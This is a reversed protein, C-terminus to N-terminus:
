QMLTYRYAIVDGNTDFYVTLWEDRLSRPTFQIMFSFTENTQFRQTPDVIDGDLNTKTLIEYRAFLSEVENTKMGAKLSGGLRELAYPRSDCGAWVVALVICVVFVSIPRNKLKFVPGIKRM